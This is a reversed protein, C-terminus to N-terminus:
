ETETEVYPKLGISKLWEYGPRETFGYLTVVVYEGNSLGWLYVAQPVTESVACQYRELVTLNTDGATFHYRIEKWREGVTVADFVIVSANREAETGESIISIAPNSATRNSWSEEEWDVREKTTPKVTGYIDGDRVTLSYSSGFWWVGSVSASEPLKADYLSNLNCIPVQTSNNGFFKQINKQDEKDFNGEQITRKMDALSDFTFQPPTQSANLGSSSSTLKDYFSMVYNGDHSERITYIDNSLVERDACGCLSVLLLVLIFCIMKKM